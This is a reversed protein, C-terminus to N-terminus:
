EEEDEDSSIFDIFGELNTNNIFEYLDDYLDSSLTSVYENVTDIGYQKICYVLYLKYESYDLMSLSNYEEIGDGVEKLYLAAAKREEDDEIDTIQNYIDTVDQMNGEDDEVMIKIIEESDELPDSEEVEEAVDETTIEESIDEISEEKDEIEKSIDEKISEKGDCQIFNEGISMNYLLDIYKARVTARDKIDEIAEIEEALVKMQLNLAKKNELKM